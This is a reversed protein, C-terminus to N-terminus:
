SRTQLGTDLSINCVGESLKADRKLDVLSALFTLLLVVEITEGTVMEGAEDDRGECCWESEQLSEM